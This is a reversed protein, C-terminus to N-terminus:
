MCAVFSCSKVDWTLRDEYRDAKMVRPAADQLDSGALDASEKEDAGAAAHFMSDAAVLSAHPKRDSVVMGPARSVSKSPEQKSPAEALWWQMGSDSAFAPQNSEAIEKIRRAHWM